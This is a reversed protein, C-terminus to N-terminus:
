TKIARWFGAGTREVEKQGAAAAEAVVVV